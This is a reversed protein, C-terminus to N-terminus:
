RLGQTNIVNEISQSVVRTDKVSRRDNVSTLMAVVAYQTVTLISPTTMAPKTAVAIYSVATKKAMESRRTEIQGPLDQPSLTCSNMRELLKAVIVFM